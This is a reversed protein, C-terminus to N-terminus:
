RVTRLGAAAADGGTRRALRGVVTRLRTRGAADLVFKLHTGAASVAVVEAAFTGPEDELSLELRGGRPVELAAELLAGGLGVNRVRTTVRRDGADVVGAVDVAVRPHERRDGAASGRLTGILRSRLREIEDAVEGAVDLVRASMAGAERSTTSVVGISDLVRSTGAAAEQAREAIAGTAAKQAAVADSVTGAIRHIHGITAGIGGIAGVAEAVAQQIAVIQQTIEETAHGTQAALSKVEGAVVAFGKGAEGARAAEITANLALLNTQGAIASILQVVQSIRESSEALARVIDGTRRAEDVAAAAIGSSEGVQTEIARIAEALAAAAAAVTRVSGTADEAAGAVADSCSRVDDAQVHMRGASERMQQARGIIEAVSQSVATELSDSMDLLAHRRETEAKRMLADVEGAQRRMQAVNAKLVRLLRAIRGVPGRGAAPVEVAVDGLALRGLAETVRALPGVLRFAFVAFLVSGAGQLALGALGAAASGTLMAAAGLALGGALAAGACAPLLVGGGLTGAVDAPEDTVSAIGLGNFYSKYLMDEGLIHKVLWDRLFDFAEDSIVAAGDRAFKAQLDLVTATLKGHLAHHHHLVPYNWKRFLAEEEAFHSTTYAILEDLIPGLVDAGHRAENADWLQNLLAMLRKHADDFERIGVSFADNWAILSM